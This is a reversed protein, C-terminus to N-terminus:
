YNCACQSSKKLCLNLGALPKCCLLVFYPELLDWVRKLDRSVLVCIIVPMNM